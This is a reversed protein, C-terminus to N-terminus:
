KLATLRLIEVIPGAMHIGAMDNRRKAELRVRMGDQRFAAPVGDM